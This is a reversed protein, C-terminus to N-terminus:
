KKAIETDGLQSKMLDIEEDNLLQLIHINELYKIAQKHLHTRISNSRTLKLTEVFADTIEYTLDILNRFIKHNENTTQDEKMTNKIQEILEPSKHKKQNRILDVLNGPNKQSPTGSEHVYHITFSSIKQVELTKYKEKLTILLEVLQKRNYEDTALEVQMNLAIASKKLEDRTLSLEKRQIFVSWLLLCVTAFGFIPNLTGGLFDGLQGLREPDFYSLPEGFYYLASTVITFLGFIALGLIITATLLKLWFCPSSYIEKWNKETKTICSEQKSETM